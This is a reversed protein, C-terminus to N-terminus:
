KGRVCKVKEKPLLRKNEVSRKCKEKNHRNLKRGEWEFKIKERMCKVKEEPMCKIKWSGKHEKKARTGKM